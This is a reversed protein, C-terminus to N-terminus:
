GLAAFPNMLYHIAGDTGPPEIVYGVARLFGHLFHDSSPPMEPRLDYHVVVVDDRKAANEALVKKVMSSKGTGSPGELVILQGVQQILTDRIFDEDEPRECWKDPPPVSFPVNSFTSNISARQSEITRAAEYERKAMTEEYRDQETRLTWILPVVTMVAGIWAMPIRYRLEEAKRRGEAEERRLEDRKTKAEEENAKRRAEERQWEREERKAALVEPLAAM